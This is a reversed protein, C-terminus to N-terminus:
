LIIVKDNAKDYVVQAIPVVDDGVDLDHMVEVDLGAEKQLNLLQVILESVKM